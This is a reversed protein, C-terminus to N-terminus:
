RQAIAGLVTSEVAARQALPITAGETTTVYFSDVVDPGYTEIVASRLQLDSRELGLTLRRLLGFSDSARVELVSADTAEDDFWSLDAGTATIRDYTAEKQSLQADIDVTGDLVKLLRSTLTQASPSTGFRPQVIFSYVPLGNPRAVRARLVALREAALVGAITSLPLDATKAAVVVRPNAAFGSAVDVVVPADEDQEYALRVAEIVRRGIRAAVPPQGANRARVQRVLEELLRAKWESWAAPGTAKADAQTLAALLDIVAPAGGVAEAVIESTAPDQLDRRAATAPLLLHHRVLTQVVVVDDASFGMRIAIKAAIPGGIESHDGRYGKGIDHLLAAVLLLDPRNVTHRLFGAQIVTEILHRDVTWRHVANHQALSRTHDWEPLYASIIGHQDLSEWVQLLTGSAALLAVFDNRMQDTWVALPDAISMRLRDLTFTTILQDAEAAARATRWTIGPDSEPHADRALVVDGNHSVVDIALPARQVAVRARPMRLRARLTLGSAPLQVASRRFAVDMAYTVTRAAENVARLVADPGSYRLREAVGARDQARLVDGSKGTIRHVESRVDLLVERAERVAPRIDILQARALAQLVAGDRLGGYSQKLNPELLYAASGFQVRREQALAQLETVRKPGDLRWATVIRSAAEQAISQDGAIFRIDLLGLAVKVDSVALKAAQDITRVSHDLVIGSDWIPYWISDAIRSINETTDQHLLVLDLDSRPAMESRGLGGVAVLAIGSRQPMIQCLWDDYLSTLARRLEPGAVSSRLLQGRAEKLEASSRTPMENARAFGCWRTLM